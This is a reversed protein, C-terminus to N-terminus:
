HSGCSGGAGEGSLIRKKCRRIADKALKDCRENERHDSHGRVWKWEVDHFRALRLLQEWLDRNLVEQKRSNKWDNRLWGSMWSTMGQVVYNSDTVVRVKCPRKLAELGRIVATLEMRNNTTEPECASLEKERGNHRLIVGYGGVGPNGSCAGDAFIEVLPKEGKEM